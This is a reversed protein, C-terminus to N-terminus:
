TRQSLAAAMPWIAVAAGLHQLQEGTLTLLACVAIALGALAIPAPTPNQGFTLWESGSLVTIVSRSRSM